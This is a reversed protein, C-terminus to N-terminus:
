SLLIKIRAKINEYVSTLKRKAEDTLLATHAVANRIPRYEKADNHLTNQVGATDAQKVLYSMDLYSLDDNNKRIDININGEQKHTTERTKWENIETQAIPTISISKENIYRRVLNESIFCEAYSEFNFAADESLDNVWGDVKRKNESDESLDYEGSVANYLGISAREKKSIRESEQDGEKKHKLRWKDWDELIESIKRRLNELFEQYRPDNAIIGERSTAFRDKEDDLNNFHIQGYFYNEAIRATPIHRLIDRERLRGNVFLDVSAREDTTTIKLKSPKSVSAIFGKVDGAMEISKQPEKLNTLKETIYPDDLGNINWLFQTDQALENLHDLTIKENDLFIDFSDDLLSFRFYLAIIKQLFELSNRIGDKINEFYIITGKDHDETYPNFVALNLNGLQYEQPTLDNTIAQNLGSNDIVGGVYDGGSIKSIVSVKEACSLLALKGIGKRGIYPRGKPSSVQGEKRKSYGIKLFKSQFDDATMGVGDDKIFFSNRDRDIYIWVNKADADWSNSVAEGLVTIFSRYLNRGLHDLVSLSIEFTFKNNKPM